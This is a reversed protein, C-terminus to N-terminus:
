DIAIGEFGNKHYKHGTLELRGDDAHWKGGILSQVYLYANSIRCHCTETSQLHHFPGPDACIRSYLFIYLGGGM